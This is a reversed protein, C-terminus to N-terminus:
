GPAPAPARRGFLGFLRRRKPAKNLVGLVPMGEIQALDELSRVRRDTMERLFAFGVGLMGGLVIALATNLLLKPFSPKLPPIAPNLIAINSQTIQGELNTQTFRQAAAEYARQASEVEKILVAMEDRGVNGALLSEKQQEVARRLQAVRSSSIRYQNTIGAAANQIEETLKARISEVEATARQFEPHNRGLQGSVQSLRASASSLQSKLGNILPNALVDPLSEPSQGSAIFGDLQRKRSAADSAQAEALVLQQNLEQLKANEVDMAEVAAHIGKDRQYASLRAQAKELNGKLTSLQDNFWTAMQKAPEVRLELNTDIYARAFANSIAAAFDPNNGTYSVNIISAERSPEVDLYKILLEALWDEIKGKGEADAVFEEQMAPIEALRLNKVVKVGVNHSEIIGVQTAMYGPMLQAPLLAGTVPDLAKFDIVLTTTATYRPPLLLSLAAATGVTVLLTFVVIWKRAWLITLFQQFSM